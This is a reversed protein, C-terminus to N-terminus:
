DNSKLSQRMDILMMVLAILIVVGLSVEKLKFVLPLLYSLMLVVAVVGAFIKLGM